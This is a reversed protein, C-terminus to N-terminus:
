WHFFYYVAYSALALCRRPWAFALAPVVRPWPWPWAKELDLRPRYAIRNVLSFISFQTRCNFLM